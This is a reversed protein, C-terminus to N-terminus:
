KKKKGIKKNIEKVLKDPDLGHVLAGDELSEFMSMSCGICRMGNNMLVEIAEPYKEVLESFKIKKTIGSGLKKTKKKIM